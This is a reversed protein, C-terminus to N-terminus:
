KVEQKELPHRNLLNGDLWSLRQFVPGRSLWAVVEGVLLGIVTGSLVDALFHQVLFVRSLAVAAGLLAFLLGLRPKFDGVIMALVSYLAFAGMTHGSPFSTQGSNLEVGAVLVVEQIRHIKEFYTLPRDTGILDKVYYQLPLTILGALLLLLAYRYRVLLALLLTFFFFAWFESLKTMFIFLTNLPEVRWPNFYLIEDGYPVYYNIVLGTNFMILVPISFWPNHWVSKM